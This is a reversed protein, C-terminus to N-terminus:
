QELRLKSDLTCGGVVVTDIVCARICLASLHLVLIYLLLSSGLVECGRGRGWSSCLLSLCSFSRCALFFIVVLRRYLLSPLFLLSLLCYGFCISIIRHWPFYSLPLVGALSLFDAWAWYALDVQQCQVQVVGPLPYLWEPLNPQAMLTLSIISIYVGPYTSSHAPAVWLRYVSTTSCHPRCLPLPKKSHVFIRQSSTVCVFIHLQTLLLMHVEGMPESSAAM